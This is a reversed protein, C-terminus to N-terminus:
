RRRGADRSSPGNQRGNEPSSGTGDFLWSPPRPFSITGVEKRLQDPEIGDSTTSTLLTFLRLTNGILRSPIDEGPVVRNNIANFAEGDLYAMIINVVEYAQDRDLRSGCLAWITDVIWNKMETVARLIDAPIETTGIPDSGIFRYLGPNELPYNALNRMLIELYQAAPMSEDLDQILYRCYHELARRFAAWFIDKFSEFYNYANTHACGIRRSVERLNVGQSGGNEVILELTVQVFQDAMPGVRKKKSM